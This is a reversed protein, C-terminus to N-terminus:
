VVATRVVIRVECRQATGVARSVLCLGKAKHLLGIARGRKAENEITLTPRIVIESFEYADERKSVTGDAEVELDSYDFRSSTAIAHFTTTFGGALASLLLDEPTWRGEIGGFCVPGTFHIAIPGSDSKALGAQGATWWAVVHYKQPHEMKAEGRGGAMVASEPGAAPLFRHGPDGRGTIEIV